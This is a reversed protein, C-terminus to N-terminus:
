NEHKGHKKLYQSAKILIEPNDRMLGLGGNCSNCLLERIKGTNHCHDVQLRRKLNSEHTGCIACYGGQKEHMNKYDELTIKYSRKLGAKFNTEQRKLKKDESM